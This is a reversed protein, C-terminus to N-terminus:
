VSDKLLYQKAAELWDLSDEINGLTHNCRRCLLGRFNGKKHCHDLSLRAIKKSKNNILTEPKNCIKCLGKQEEYLKNYFEVTVNHDQKLRYAFTKDPNRRKWNRNYDINYGM